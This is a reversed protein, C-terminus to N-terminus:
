IVSRSERLVNRELTNPGHVSQPDLERALDAWPPSAPSWAMRLVPVSAVLRGLVDLAASWLPPGPPVLTVTLLRRLAALSTLRDFRCRPGKELELLAALPFTGDPANGQGLTGWFGTRAVGFPPGPTVAVLEDSLVPHPSLSALTSTGSGSPGFFVIGRGDLVLGAAHLPLGGVLPLRAALAVRLAIELAFSSQTRRFLTGSARAPDLRAQFDRHLVRVQGDFWDVAAPAPAPPFPTDPWLPDSVLRLCFPPAVAPVGTTLAALTTREGDTLARDPEVSFALGGLVADM